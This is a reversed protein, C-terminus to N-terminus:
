MAHRRSQRIATLTLVSLVAIELQETAHVMGQPSLHTADAFDNLGLTPSFYYAHPALRILPPQHTIETQKPHLDLLLWLTSNRQRNSQTFTMFRRQLRLTDTWSPTNLKSLTTPSSAWFIAGRSSSTPDRQLTKRSFFWGPDGMWDPFEAIASLANPLLRMAYSYQAILCYGHWLGRDPSQCVTQYRWATPYWYPHVDSFEPQRLAHADVIVIYPPNVVMLGALWAQQQHWDGDLTALNYAQLEWHAAHTKAVISDPWVGTAALPGGMIVLTNRWPPTTNILNRHLEFKQESSVLGWDSLEGQEYLRRALYESFGIVALFVLLLAITPRLQTLSPRNM